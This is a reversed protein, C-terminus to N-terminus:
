FSWKLAVTPIVWARNNQGWKDFIFNNSIELESGVSLNFGECGKLANFNFWFQPESVLIWNGKVSADYWCDLFGTFSFMRDAFHMGWVMTAQFSNFPKNWPNQGKFYYKYLAQVSLTRTFDGNAWNWAPGLLFAHQFRTANATNKNSTLGGDYEIHAAWPSGKKWSLERAFEWYAGAVGDSYYDLDVFFFTNGWQDPKFLEVTTTVRPRESLRDSLVHGWDKHVQVHQASLGVACFLFHIFINKRMM